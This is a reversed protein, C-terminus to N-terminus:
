PGSTHSVLVAYLFTPNQVLTYTELDILGCVWGDMWVVMWVCLWGDLCVDLWEDMWVVM